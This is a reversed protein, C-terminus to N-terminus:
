SLLADELIARVVAAGHDPPMSWNARTLSLLNSQVIQSQEASRSLGQGVIGVIPRTAEADMELRKGLGQYAFDIMPLVGRDRLLAAVVTWQEVDLDAGTPNYCCGHLLAVDGPAAEASSALM